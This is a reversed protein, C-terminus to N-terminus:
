RPRLSIQKLVEILTERRGASEACFLIRQDPREALFQLLAAFPMKLSSDSSLTPLPSSGLSYASPDQKFEIQRFRKFERLLEDIQIFSEDPNLIPRQRDFQREDFRSVIDLWFSDGADKLRGLRCLTASDPLYDFVSNLEDFFLALYYELGPSAIGESVDQYLPAQRLDVDFRDRFANRFRTIGTEDLPYERGPLLRIEDIKGQSLQTEPDFLRLTEIEDDWLDIRFPQKSGMPFLDIISGRVAFEGHEYVADVSQYGASVLQARLRNIDLNQGIKLKLTNALVYNKPPLKHMLSTISVVLVGRELAPLHFLASLRDSVIDQHPSFNDYPLTEWDPLTFLKLAPYVSTFYRLERRLEEVSENNECIVVLPGPAESAAQAIALSRASGHADSWYQTQYADSPLPPNFPNM